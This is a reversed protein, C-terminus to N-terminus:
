LTQRALRVVGYTLTSPTCENRRLERDLYIDLQTKWTRCAM